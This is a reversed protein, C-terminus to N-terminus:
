RRSPNEEKKADHGKINQNPSLVLKIKDALLLLNLPKGIYDNAGMKLVEGAIEPNGTFIIIPVQSFARVRELVELGTVDPMLVDLLVVDPKGTRILEIAEAGSTTYIADYGSLKLNIRLVKGIGPEDDVILIRKKTKSNNM